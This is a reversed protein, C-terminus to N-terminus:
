DPCAVAVTIAASPIFRRCNKPQQDDEISSVQPNAKQATELAALQGRAEERAYLSEVTEANSSAAQEFRLKAIDLLQQKKAILGLLNLAETYNKKHELATKAADEAGALSGLRYLILGRASYAHAHKPSREIVMNLIKLADRHRGKDSVLIAQLTEIKNDGPTTKAAQALDVNALDTKDLRRLMLARKYRATAKKKHRELYSDLNELSKQSDGLDYYVVSRSYYSDAHNANLAIARNFDRLAKQFQGNNRYSWGRNFHAIYRQKKPLRGSKLIRTCAAAADRAQANTCKALDAKMGAFAPAAGGMVLVVTLSTLRTRQNSWRHFM